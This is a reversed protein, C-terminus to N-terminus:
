RDLRFARTTNSVAMAPHPLVVPFIDPRNAWHLMIREGVLAAKLASRGLATSSLKRGENSAEISAIHQFVPPPGCTSLRSHSSNREKNWDPTDHWLLRQIRMGPEGAALDGSNLVLVFPICIVQRDACCSLGIARVALMSQKTSRPNRLRGRESARGAGRAHRLQGASESAETEIAIKM